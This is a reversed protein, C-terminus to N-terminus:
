VFIGFPLFMLSLCIYFYALIRLRICHNGIVPPLFRRFYYICLYVLGCLTTVSLLTWITPQYIHHLLYQLVRLTEIFQIVSTIHLCSGAFDYLVSCTATGALTLPLLLYAAHRSHQSLILLLTFFVTTHPVQVLVCADNSYLLLCVMSLAFALVILISCAIHINGTQKPM